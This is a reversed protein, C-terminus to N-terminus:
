KMRITKLMGKINVEQSIIYDRYFVKFWMEQLFPAIFNM